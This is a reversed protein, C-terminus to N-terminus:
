WKRLRQQILAKTEGDCRDHEDPLQGRQNNVNLDGGLEFLTQVTRHKNMMTAHHLPTQGLKDDKENILSEVNTKETFTMLRRQAVDDIIDSSFAIWHIINRGGADVIAFDQPINILHDFVYEEALVAVDMLMM